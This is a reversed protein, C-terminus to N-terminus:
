PPDSPKGGTESEPESGPEAEAPATSKSAARLHSRFEVHATLYPSHERGTVAAEINELAKQMHSEAASPEARALLYYVSALQAQPVWAVNAPGSTILKEYGDRSKNLAKPAEDRATAIREEIQKPDFQSGPLLETLREMVKVHRSLNVVRQAQVRGVFAYAAAEASAGIRDTRNLFEDGTMIKLRENTRKPDEERQVTSARAMWQGTVRKSAEFARAAQAAAELAAAEATYSKNLLESIREFSAKIRADLEEINKRANAGAEGAATGRKQVFEIQREIEGRSKAYGSQEIQATELEFELEALPKVAEGGEIEGRALDDGLKAGRLGGFRLEEEQQQWARLRASAEGHEVRYAAFQADDGASFGKQEIALLRDRAASLEGQVRELEARRQAVAETLESVGQAAKKEAAAVEELDKRLGAVTEQVDLGAFLDVDGREYKQASALRILESQQEALEKQRAEADQLSLGAKASLVMGLIQNVGIAEGDTGRADNAHKEASKLLAANDAMWKEVNAVAGRIAEPGLGIAKLRTPLGNRKDRSTAAGIAQNFAPALGEFGAQYAQVLARVDSQKLGPLDIRAALEGIGTAFLDLERRALEATLQAQRASAVAPSVLARSFLGGAIVVLVIVAGVVIPPKM